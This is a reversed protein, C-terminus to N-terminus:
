AADVDDFRDDGLEDVRPGVVADAQDREGARRIEDAREREIVVPELLIELADLDAVTSSPVAMPEAIAAPTLRRRSWGALDFIM